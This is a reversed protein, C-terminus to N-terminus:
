SLEFDIKISKEQSLFHWSLWGAGIYLRYVHNIIGM